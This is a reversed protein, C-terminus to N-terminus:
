RRVSVLLIGAARKLLQWHYRICWWLMQCCTSTANCRQILLNPTLWPCSSTCALTYLKCAAEAQDSGVVNYQGTREAQLVVQHVDRNSVQQTLLHGLAGWCTPAQTDLLSLLVYLVNWIVRTCLLM